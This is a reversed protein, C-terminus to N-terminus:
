HKPMSKTMGCMFLMIQFLHAAKVPISKSGSAKYMCLGKSCDEYHMSLCIYYAYITTNKNELDCTIWRNGCHNQSFLQIIHLREEGPSFDVFDEAKMLMLQRGVGRLM